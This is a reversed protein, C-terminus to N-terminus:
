VAVNVAGIHNIIYILKPFFCVHWHHLVIYSVTTAFGCNGIAADIEFESSWHQVTKMRM